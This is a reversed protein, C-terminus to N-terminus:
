LSNFKYRIFQKNKNIKSFCHVFQNKNESYGDGGDGDFADYNKM